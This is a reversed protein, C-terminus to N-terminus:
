RSTKLILECADLFETYSLDNKMRNIYYVCWAVNGKVYGKNPDLRDLSPALRHPHTRKTKAPIVVSFDLPVHTYFCMKNQTEFLNILYEDTLDFDLGNVKARSRFSKVAWKIYKRYDSRADTRWEAQIDRVCPKCRADYTTYKVGGNDHYYYRKVSFNEPINDYITKCVRCKRKGEAKLSLMEKTQM